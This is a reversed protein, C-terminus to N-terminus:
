GGYAIGAKKEPMRRVAEAEDEWSGWSVKVEEITLSANAGV